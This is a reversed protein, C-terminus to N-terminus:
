GGKDAAAPVAMEDRNGLVEEMKLRAEIEARGIWAEVGGSVEEEVSLSPRGKDAAAPVAMEDRNGLVEEMKLRAEIEARGIWAEVGGSVEEEVSLSPRGKINEIM